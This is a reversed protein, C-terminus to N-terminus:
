RSITTAPWHWATASWKLQWHEAFLLEAVMAGTLNVVMREAM